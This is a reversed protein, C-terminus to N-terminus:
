DHHAVLDLTRRTWDTIEVQPTAIGTLRLLVRVSARTLLRYNEDDFFPFNAYLVQTAGPRSEVRVYGPGRRLIQWLTPIRRLMFGPTSLRLIATLFRHAGFEAAEELLLEFRGADGDALGRRLAELVEALVQEPYWESAIPDALMERTADSLHPDLAGPSGRHELFRHATVLWTGKVEYAGDPPPSAESAPM